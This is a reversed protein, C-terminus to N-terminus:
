DFMVPPVGNKFLLEAMDENHAWYLLFRGGKDRSNLKAGHDILAQTLELDNREVAFTLPTRGSPTEANVDAGNNLLLLVAGIGGEQVGYLLATQGYSDKENVDAGNEILVLAAGQQGNYTAWTLPTSISPKGGGNGLDKLLIRLVRDLGFYAAARIGVNDEGFIETSPYPPVNRLLRWSSRVKSEKRLFLLIDQDVEDATYAHYGWFKSAYEYAEMVKGVPKLDIETPTREGDIWKSGNKTVGLYRDWWWSKLESDSGEWFRDEFLDLSLYTLCTRSIYGEAKPLWDLKTQDFYKRATYHVLRIVDSKADITVVGACVAVIDNAKNPEIALFLRIETWTMTRQAFTLWSLVKIALRRQENPQDLIRRMADDYVLRYIQPDLGNPLSDLYSRISKLTTKGVLANFHLEALLFIGQTSEIIKTKDRLIMETNEQVGSRLQYMKCDIYKEVDQTTAQIELRLGNNFVKTIPPNNRSTAFLFVNGTKQLGFLDDLFLGLGGDSVQLEDLADVVIFVKTHHKVVSHLLRLVEDHEPRTTRYRHRDHLDKIAKLAFGGNGLQKLLSLFLDTPTQQAKRRFDGYIFAIGISTDYRFRALIDNIVITALMTKGSSPIGSCFLTEGTSGLWAQYKPSQLLWQGTGPQVRRLFDSYQPSYSVPTLWHLSESSQERDMKSELKSVIESIQTLVDGISREGVVDSPQLSELLERAYAAAAAAAYEQWEKSKESDAYDCIGRIVLCPFDNMLGAAEMEVCLLKGGFQDNLRDRLKDDKIVQNGSAILGYHVRVGEPKKRQGNPVLPDNLSASWTYRSALRPWNRKLHDLYQPMKSGHMEHKTYLRGLATLLCTPPNNLAGTRKFGESEAKGLDWQVVGPYAGDPTGVVVDGLRVGSSPIGGGIGVMLGVKIAPFASVMRAAVTAASNTGIRGMPLCTIVVNHPGISGLIYNNHDDQHKPLDHHIEHLMAM